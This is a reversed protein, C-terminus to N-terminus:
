EFIVEDLYVDMSKTKNNIVEEKIIDFNERFYDIIKKVKPTLDRVSLSGVILELNCLKSYKGYASNKIYADYYKKFSALGVENFRSDWLIKSTIYTSENKISIDLITEGEYNKINPNFKKNKRIEKYIDVTKINNISLLIHSLTNGLNNQHNIDLDKNKLHKMVIDFYGKKLLKMLINNGENDVVNIDFSKRSLIRDLLEMHEEKLLEFILAPDNDCANITKTEDYFM